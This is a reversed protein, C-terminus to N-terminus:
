FSLLSALSFHKNLAMLVSYILYGSCVRNSHRIDAIVLKCKFQKIHFFIVNRYIDVSYKNIKFPKASLALLHM